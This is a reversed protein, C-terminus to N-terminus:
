KKPIRRLEYTNGVEPNTCSVYTVDPDQQWPFTAGTMMAWIVPFNANYVLPCMGEPTRENCIWEQGPQIGIDCAKKGGLCKVKVDYMKSEM